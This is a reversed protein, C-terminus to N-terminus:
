YTIEKRKQEKRTSELTQLCTVIMEGRRSQFGDRGGGRSLSQCYGGGCVRRRCSLASRPGVLLIRRQRRRRRRLHLTVSLSPYRPPNLLRKLECRRSDSRPLNDIQVESCSDPCNAKRGLSMIGQATRYLDELSSYRSSLPPLVCPPQCRRRHKGSLSHRIFSPVVHSGLVVSVNLNIILPRQPFLARESVKRADKPVVRVCGINRLYMPIHVQVHVQLSPSM